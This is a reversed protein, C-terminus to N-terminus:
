LMKKLLKEARKTNFIGCQCPKALEIGAEVANSTAIVSLGRIELAEKLLSLFEKEDDVILIEQTTRM